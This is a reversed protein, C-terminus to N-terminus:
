DTVLFGEYGAEKLRLMYDNIFGPDSSELEILVRYYVKDNVTKQTIIAHINKKKLEKVMDEANEPMVFSGTQIFALEIEDKNQEPEKEPEPEREPESTIDEIDQGHVIFSSPSPYYSVAGTEGPNGLKVALSYEPSSPFYKEFVAMVKKIEKDDGLYHLCECYGLLIVPYLPSAKYHQILTIYNKKAEEWEGQASYLSSALIGAKVLIDPDEAHDSIIGLTEWSKDFIGQKYFIQAASLLSSYQKKGTRNQFVYLYYERAQSLNGHLEELQAISEATFIKEDEIRCIPLIKYLFNILDKSDSDLRVVRHLITHFREHGSNELLWAKYIEVAESISNEAEKKQAAELSFEQPFVFGGAFCCYFLIFMYFLSSRIAPNM